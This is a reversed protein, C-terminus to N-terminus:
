SESDTVKFVIELDNCTSFVAVDGDALLFFDLTVLSKIQDNKLGYIPTMGM